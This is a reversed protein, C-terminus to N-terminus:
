SFWQPTSLNEDVTLCMEILTSLTTSKGFIQIKAPKRVKKRKVAIIANKTNKCRRMKITKRNRKKVTECKRLKMNECKRMKANKVKEWKQTKANGSKSTM